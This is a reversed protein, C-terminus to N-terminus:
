FNQFIIDTMEALEFKDAEGLDNGHNDYFAAEVVEVYSLDIGDRWNEEAHEYTAIEVLFSGFDNEFEFQHVGDFDRHIEYLDITSKDFAGCLLKIIENKRM